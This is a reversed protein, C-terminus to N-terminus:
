NGINLNISRKNIYKGDQNSGQSSIINETLPSLGEIMQFYPRSHPFSWRSSGTRDRDMFFVCSCSLLRGTNWLQNFGWWYRWLLHLAKPTTRQTPKVANCGFNWCLTEQWLAAGTTQTGKPGLLVQQGATLLVSGHDTSAPLPPSTKRGRDWQASGNLTTPCLTWARMWSYSLDFLVPYIRWLLLLVGLHTTLFSSFHQNVGSIWICVRYM